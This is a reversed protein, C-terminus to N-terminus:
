DDGMHLFRPGRPHAKSYADARRGLVLGILGVLFFCAGFIWTPAPAFGGAKMVTYIGFAIMGVAVVLATGWVGSAPFHTGLRVIAFAVGLICALALLFTVSAASAFNEGLAALIQTVVFTLVAALACM